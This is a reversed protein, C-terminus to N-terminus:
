SDKQDARTVERLRGLMTSQAQAWREGMELLPQLAEELATLQEDFADLQSRLARVQDRQARLAGAFAQVQRMPLATAANGAELISIWQLVLSSAGNRDSKNLRSIRDIIDQFRVTFDRVVNGPITSGSDHDSPDTAM